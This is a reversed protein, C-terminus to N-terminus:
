KGKGVKTSEKQKANHRQTQVRNIDVWKDMWGDMTIIAGKLNGLEDLRLKPLVEGFLL